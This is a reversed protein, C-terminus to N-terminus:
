LLLLRLLLYTTTITNCVCIREEDSFPYMVPVLGRFKSAPMEAADGQLVLGSFFRFNCLRIITHTSNEPGPDDQHGDEACFFHMLLYFM